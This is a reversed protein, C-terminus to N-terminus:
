CLVGGGNYSLQFFGKSLSGNCPKCAIDKKETLLDMFAAISADRYEEPCDMLPMLTDGAMYFYYKPMYSSFKTGELMYKLTLKDNIWIREWSNLPWIRYYEYDSLYEKITDDTLNYAAVSEALFGRSHAWELEQPKWWGCTKEAELLDSFYTAMKKSFGAHLLGDMTLDYM